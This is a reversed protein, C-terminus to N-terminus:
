SAIPQEKISDRARSVAEKVLEAKYVKLTDKRNQCIVSTLNDEGIILGSSHCIVKAELGIIRADNDLIEKLANNALEDYAFISGERSAAPGCESALESPTESVTVTFNKTSREWLVTTESVIADMIKYGDVEVQYSIDALDGKLLDIFVEWKDLMEETLALREENQVPDDTVGGARVDALSTVVDYNLEVDMSNAHCYRTSHQNPVVEILFDHNFEDYAQKRMDQLSCRLFLNKIRELPPTPCDIPLLRNIIDELNPDVIGGFFAVGDGQSHSLNFKISLDGDGYGHDNLVGMAHKIIM